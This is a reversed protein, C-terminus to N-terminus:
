PCRHSWCLRSRDPRRANALAFAVLEKSATATILQNTSNYAAARGTEPDLLLTYPLQAKPTPSIKKMLKLLTTRATVAIAATSMPTRGAGQASLALNNGCGAQQTLALTILAALM